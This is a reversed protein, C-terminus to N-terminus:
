YFILLEHDSKSIRKTPMDRAFLVAVKPRDAFKVVDIVKDSHNFYEIILLLESQPM